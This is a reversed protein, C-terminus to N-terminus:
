RRSSSRSSRRLLPVACAILGALPSLATKVAKGVLLLGLGVGLAMSVLNWPEPLEPLWGGLWGGSQRQAEGATVDSIRVPIKRYGELYETYLRKVEEYEPLLEERVLRAARRTQGGELLAAVRECEGSMERLLSSIRSALGALHRLLDAYDPHRGASEELYRATRSWVEAAMAYWHALKRYGEPTPPVRGGELAYMYLAELLAKDLETRYNDYNPPMEQGVFYYGNEFTVAPIGARAVPATVWPPSTGTQRPDVRAGIVGALAECIELAKRYSTPNDNGHVPGAPILIFESVGWWPRHAHVDIFLEPRGTIGVGVKRGLEEPNLVYHLVHHYFTLQGLDRSVQYDRRRDGTTYYEKPIRIWSVVLTGKFEGSYRVFWQVANFMCQHAQHELPHVGLSIWVFHGSGNKWVYYEVPVRYTVGNLTVQYVEKLHGYELATAGAPILTIALLLTPLM